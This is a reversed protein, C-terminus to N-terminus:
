TPAGIESALIGNKSFPSSVDVTHVLNLQARMDHLSGHQKNPPLNLGLKQRYRM